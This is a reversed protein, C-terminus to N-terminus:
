RPPTVSPHYRLTLTMESIFPDCLWATAGSKSEPFLGTSVITSGELPIATYQVAGNTSSTTVDSHRHSHYSSQPWKPFGAGSDSPCIVPDYIGTHGVTSGLTYQSVLKLSWWPPSKKNSCTCSSTYPLWSYVWKAKQYTSLWYRWCVTQWKRGPSQM